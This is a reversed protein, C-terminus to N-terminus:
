TELTCRNLADELRSGLSVPYNVRGSRGDRVMKKVSQTTGDLKTKVFIPLVKKLTLVVPAVLGIPDYVSSTMRLTGRCTNPRDRLAVKFTFEDKELDWKLGM